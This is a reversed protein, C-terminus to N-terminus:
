SFCCFRCMTPQHHQHFLLPRRGWKEGFHHYQLNQQWGCRDEKSWLDAHKTGFFCDGAVRVLKCMMWRYRREAASKVFVHSQIESRNLFMLYKDAACINGEFLNQKESHVQIPVGKGTTQVCKATEETLMKPWFLIVLFFMSFFGVYWYVYIFM